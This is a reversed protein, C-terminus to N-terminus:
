YAIWFAAFSALWGSQSWLKNCSSMRMTGSRHEDVYVEFNALKCQGFVRANPWQRFTKNQGLFRTTQENATSIQKLPFRVIQSYNPMVATKRVTNKGRFLPTAHEQFLCFLCYFFHVLVACGRVVLLFNYFLLQNCLHNQFAVLLLHNSIDLQDVYSWFRLTASMDPTAPRWLNHVVAGHFAVANSGSALKDPM